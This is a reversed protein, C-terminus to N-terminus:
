KLLNVTGHSSYEQMDFFVDTTYVLRWVYVGVPAMKSSNVKGDWGINRNRSSFILEGWRDYVLFEYERTPCTLVPIFIENMKDANPTFTNPIFASCSCDVVDVNLGATTTNCDNTVAVEYYGDTTITIGPSTSGTNWLYSSNPYSVTLTLPGERCITTDGPLTVSPYPDPHAIVLMTDTDTCNTNTTVTVWYTGPQTVTIAANTSGNNWLYQTTSSNATVVAQDGPCLIIDPGVSVTPNPEVTLVVTDRNICGTANTVTVTYTGPQGTTMSMGITGDSWLAGIGNTNVTFTHTQGSCIVVDPGINATPLPVVTLNINDSITCGNLDTVTVSYNGATNVTITPTTANNSWLYGIGNQTQANFTISAGTCISTDNGLNLNGATSVTVFITDRSSCGAQSTVEVWYVGTQNVVISSGNSGNSWLFQNATTQPQLTVSQGACITTDNGLNVPPLPNVTLVVTDRNTCGFANTATAIYTGAVGTTMSLGSQGNSWSVGTGNTTATFTHTNGQCIVADAGANVTVSLVTVHATDTSNGSTVVYSTNVTPSVSINATNGIINNPNGAVHWSYTGTGGTATLTVSSGLCVTDNNTQVIPNGCPGNLNFGDLSAYSNSGNAIRAQLVMTTANAVFNMQYPNWTNAVMPISFIQCTSGVCIEPNAPASNFLAGTGFCAGCFYLTYQQGPTLGTITTQACEGLAAIGLWSGGDPSAIAPVQSNGTYSRFNVDCLDPSFACTSWGAANALVNNGVPFGTVSGNTVTQASIQSIFCLCVYTFVSRILKGYM